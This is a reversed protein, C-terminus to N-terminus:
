QIRFASEAPRDWTEPPAIDADRLLEENYILMPSLDVYPSFGYLEGAYTGLEWFSELYNKSWDSIREEADDTLDTIPVIIDETALEALMSNEIIIFDPLSGLKWVTVM